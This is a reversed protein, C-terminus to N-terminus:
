QKGDLNIKEVTDDAQATVDALSGVAKISEGEVLVAEALPQDDNVIIITGNYYLTQAM